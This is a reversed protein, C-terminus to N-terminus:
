RPGRRRRIARILGPRPIYATIVFYSNPNPDEVFIVQLWRGEDLYHGYANQLRGPRGKELVERMWRPDVAEGGVLVRRVTAFASPVERAVQNFLAATVFM